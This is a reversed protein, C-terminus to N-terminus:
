SVCQTVITWDHARICRYANCAEDAFREIGVDADHHDAEIKRESFGYKALIYSM